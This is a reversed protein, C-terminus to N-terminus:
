RKEKPAFENRLGRALTAPVAADLQDLTWADTTFLTEAPRPQTMRSIQDASVVFDQGNVSAAADSCLWAVFAAVAEPAQKEIQSIDVAPEGAKRAREAAERLEDSLTMRTAARPRIVNCRCGYRGLDRAVTRTFGVIGEKAASYNSQGMNGLGSESGTNVVIGSRQDRFVTAAARTCVFTGKLHVAIVGDWEQETMNHLMRDRLIGANNILIDLRGFEHLALQVLEEGTAMKSVDGYHPIAKGGAATVADAVEDAPGEAGGTGDAGGGFDNVILSAGQRALEQCEARGIGRGGGTVIAVKGELRM